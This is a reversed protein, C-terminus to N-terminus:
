EPGGLLWFMWRGLPIRGITKELTQPPRSGVCRTTTYGRNFEKREAVAPTSDLAITKLDMESHNGAGTSYHELFTYDFDSGTRSYTSDPSGASKCGDHASPNLMIIRLWSDTCSGLPEQRSQKKGRVCAPWRLSYPRVLPGQTVAEPREHHRTAARSIAGTERQESQSARSGGRRINDRWKGTAKSARAPVPAPVAALGRREGRPRRDRGGSKPRHNGAMGCRAVSGRAPNPRHRRNRTLSM